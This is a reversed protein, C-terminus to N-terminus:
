ASPAAASVDAHLLRLITLDDPGTLHEPKEWPLLETSMIAIAGAELAEISEALTLVIRGGDSTSGVLGGVLGPVDQVAPWAREATSRDFAACWEPSRGVFTTLQLYRARGAARGPRQDVIEYATGAGVGVPGATFGATATTGFAVLVGPGLGIARAVLAGAPRDLHALIADVWSNDYPGPVADVLHVTAQM